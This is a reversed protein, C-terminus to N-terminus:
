SKVDFTEESVETHWPLILLLTIPPFYVLWTCFLTVNGVVDKECTKQLFSTLNRANNHWRNGRGQRTHPTSLGTIRLSCPHVHNHARDESLQKMVDETKVHFNDTLLINTFNERSGSERKRFSANQIYWVVVNRTCILYVIKWELFQVLTDIEVLPVATSFYLIFCVCRPWM